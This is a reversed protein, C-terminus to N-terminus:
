ISLLDNEILSLANQMKEIFFYMEKKSINLPPLLRLIFPNSASGVFVYEKYRLYNNLFLVPFNFHIGIMLGNGSINKINRMNKLFGIAIAGITRVNEIIGENKFVELVSLAAINALYNGGFTTGLMGYFAKFQPSILVGAIPFGNGMGKAITILDPRIYAAQHSFFYGSRGYGSQIEDIILPVKYRHCHRTLKKLFDIGPYVIGVVGQIGETVVSCIEGEELESILSLEDNHSLFLRSHMNNIPPIIRNNDTIALAACTRGHFSGKFVIVKKKKNYFSSIKLANEIAEAGSNCLFFQYDKYSSLIGLKEIFEQQKTINVINSYFGIKLLQKRLFKVYFPHSHGISIVAHGGYFDLYSNGRKDFLIMGYGRELKLSFTRYVEFLNM